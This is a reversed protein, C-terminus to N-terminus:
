RKLLGSFQTLIFHSVGDSDMHRPTMRGIQYRPARPGTRFQTRVQQAPYQPSKRKSVFRRSGSAESINRSPCQRKFRTFPPSFYPDCLFWFHRNVGIWLHAVWHSVDVNRAVPAIGADTCKTRRERMQYSVHIDPLDFQSTKLSLWVPM